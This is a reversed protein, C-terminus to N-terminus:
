IKELNGPEISRAAAQRTIFRAPWTIAEIFTASPEGEIGTDPWEDRAPKWATDFLVDWIPFLSAFNRDHHRPDISHHIRHYQPGVLALTLPGWGVKFNLHMTIEGLMQLLGWVILAQSPVRFLLALIPIEIIAQAFKSLGYSYGRSFVNLARDSHHFSHLVWLAPISHELRHRWYLLCDAAAIFILCSLVLGYGEDPLPIIGGGAAKILAVITVNVAVVGLTGIVATCLFFWIALVRKIIPVPQIPRIYELPLAVSLIMLNTTLGSVTGLIIWYITKLTYM